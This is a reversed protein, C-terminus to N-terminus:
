RAPVKVALTDQHGVILERLLFSVDARNKFGVAKAAAEKEDVTAPDPKAYAVLSEYFGITFIDFDSGLGVTFITNARGGIREIYDNEIIRQRMLAEHKGAGAQFMEIHYLGSDSNLATMQQWDTESQATFQLEFDVLADVAVEFTTCVKGDCKENQGLLMLDWHNGQSHRMVIPRGGPMNAWDTEDILDLLKPLNGPAARLQTVLYDDASSAASLTLIALSAFLKRM